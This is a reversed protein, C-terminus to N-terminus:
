TEDGMPRVFTKLAEPSSLYQNGTELMGLFPSSQGRTLSIIVGFWRRTTNVESFVLSAESPM